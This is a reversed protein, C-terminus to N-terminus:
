DPVESPDIVVNTPVEPDFRVAFVAGPEAFGQVRPPSTRRVHLRMGAEFADGRDSTVTITLFFSRKEDTEGLLESQQVSAMGRDGVRQIQAVLPLQALRGQEDVPVRAQVARQELQRIRQQITDAQAALEEVAAEDGAAAAEDIAADLRAIDDRVMRAGSPDLFSGDAHTPPAEQSQKRRGFWGM